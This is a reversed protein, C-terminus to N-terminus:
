QINKKNRQFSIKDITTYFRHIQSTNYFTPNIIKIIKNETSKFVLIPYKLKSFQKSFLGLSDSFVTIPSNLVKKMMLIKRIKKGSYIVCTKIKLQDNLFKYKENMLNFQARICSQCTFDDILLFLVKSKFFFNDLQYTFSKEPITEGVLFSAEKMSKNQQLLLENDFSNSKFTEQFSVYGLLAVCLVGLTITIKSFM